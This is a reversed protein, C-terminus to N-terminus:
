KDTFNVYEEVMRETTWHELAELIAAYQQRHWGTKDKRYKTLVKVLCNRFDKADHADHTDGMAFSSGFLFCNEPIAEAMWGDPTSVNLAGNMAASMGSTGSAEMPSRPTNLWIDAGGKLVKSLDLDYEELVVMNPMETNLRLIDNFDDIMRKDDPHPKGAIIIQLSNSYLLNKIWAKDYFLLKPRKYAAFRRAWVLIPINESFYVGTKERVLDILKRKYIKKAEAVADPNKAEAFEPYQWSKHVGNTISTFPPHGDIWSWMKEIISLHKKSVANVKSSLRICAAAMDFPDGGLTRLYEKSYSNGLMKHVSDLPYKPNGADIPTHTTFVVKTPNNVAFAGFAGYSENFHYLVVDIGLQKAAEVSGIGLIIAQAIKREITCGSELDGGYLYLTNSRGLADNEPIDADLLYTPVTNFEDSLKWIKLYNKTGCIEIPFVVGTDELIGEVSVPSNSITMKNRVRDIGQKYYGYKYYITMGVMNMGLDKASMLHGASLYELGGCYIPFKSSVAIGPTVYLVTGNRM